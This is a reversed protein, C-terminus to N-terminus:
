LGGVKVWHVNNTAANYDVPAVQGPDTPDAANAALEWMSIAGGIIIFILNSVVYVNATPVADLSTAVGNVITNGVLRVISSLYQFPATGASTPVTENGQNVDNLVRLTFDPATEHTGNSDTWKIEGILDVFPVDDASSADGIVFLANLASNLFTVSFTYTATTGSGTKVWSTAVAAFATANHNGKAKFGLQGTAGASLETIIGSTLFQIAVTFTSGRKIQALHRLTESVANQTQPATVGSGGGPISGILNNTALDVYASLTPM